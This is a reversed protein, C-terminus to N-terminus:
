GDFKGLLRLYLIPKHAASAAETAKAVDTYWFLRSSLADRQGAVADIVPILRPDPSKDYQDLLAALAEGPRRRASPLRRSSSRRRSRQVLLRRGNM